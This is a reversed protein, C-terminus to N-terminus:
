IQKKLHHRTPLITLKWGLLNCIKSNNIAYRYDHGLRDEVYKIQNAAINFIFSGEIKGSKRGIQDLKIENGKFNASGNEPFSMKLIPAITDKLGGDITGRKACNVLTFISLILISKFFDNQM